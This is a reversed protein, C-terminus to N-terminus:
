MKPRNFNNLSNVTPLLNFEFEDEQLFIKVWWGTCRGGGATCVEMRSLVMGEGGGARGRGDKM